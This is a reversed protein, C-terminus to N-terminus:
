FQYEDNVVQYALSDAIPYYGIAQYIKNSTPNALDTYLTCYTFGQKLLKESLAKVCSSAYGHGRHEPPTYVLTVTIGNDTPRSCKAMSVPQGDVEWVHIAEAAIGLKVQQKVKEELIAENLAELSFATYWKEIYQSDRLKAVRLHGLCVEIPQVRDLRYIRQKMKVETKVGFKEECMHVFPNVLEAAGIFGPVHVNRIGELAISLTEDLAEDSGCIILNQPPTMVLVLRPDAESGVYAMLPPSELLTPLDRNILSHIIGLPLQNIVEQKLLLREVRTHFIQPDDFRFFDM